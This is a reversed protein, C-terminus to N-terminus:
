QRGNIVINYARTKDALVVTIYLTSGASLGMNKPSVRHWLGTTRADYVNAGIGYVSASTIYGDDNGGIFYVTNLTMDSPVTITFVATNTITQLDADVIRGTPDELYPGSSLTAYFGNEDATFDVIEANEVTVDWDEATKTEEAYATVGTGAMLSVLLMLSVVVLLSKKM